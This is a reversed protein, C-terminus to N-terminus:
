ALKRWAIDAVALDAERLTVNAEYALAGIKTARSKIDRLEDSSLSDPVGPAVSTKVQILLKMAGGVAEIDTSGPAKTDWKTVTYGNASIKSVVAAEGARGIEVQTRM